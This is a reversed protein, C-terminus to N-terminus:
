RVKEGIQLSNIASTTWAIDGNPDLSRCFYYPKYSSILVQDASQVSTSGSKMMPAINGGGSNYAAHAVVIVNKILAGTPLSPNAISYLDYTDIERGYVYDTSSAPVENVCEWNSGTSPTLGTQDGAADPRAPLLHVQGPYTNNDSGADDNIVIDDFYHNAAGSAWSYLSINTIDSAGIKTDGTYDCRKVGDVYVIFRGSSDAIYVYFEIYHSTNAWIAQSASTELHTGFRGTYISITGNSNYGVSVLPNGSIDNLEFISCSGLATTYLAMGGYIVDTGPWTTLRTWNNNAYIELSYGGTRQGYNRIYYNAASSLVDSTDGTEFGTTLLRAMNAEEYLLVGVVPYEGLHLNDSWSV